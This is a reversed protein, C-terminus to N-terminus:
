RPHTLQGISRRLATEGQKIRWDPAAFICCRGARQAQEDAAVCYPKLAGARRKFGDALGDVPKPWRAGPREDFQDIVQHPRHLRNHQGFTYGEGFTGPQVRVLHHGIEGFM